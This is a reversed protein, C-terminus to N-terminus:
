QEESLGVRDVASALEALFAESKELLNMGLVAFDTKRKPFSAVGLYQFSGRLDQWSKRQSSESGHDPDHRLLKNRLRKLAWILECDDDALYEMFRLNDAGAGEYLMLYLADVLIGLSNRDSVAIWTLNSQAQIFTTTPRFIEVRGFLRASRNCEVVGEVVRRAKQSFRAIPSLLLLDDFDLAEIVEPRKVLEREQAEFLVLGFEGVVGGGVEIEDGLADEILDAAVLTHEEALVLAGSLAARQRASTTNELATLTNRSYESFYNFPEVLRSAWDPQLDFARIGKLADSVGSLSSAWVASPMQLNRLMNDAFGSHQELRGLLGSWSAQEAEIRAFMSDTFISRASIAELQKAIEEHWSPRLIVDNVLRAQRELEESLSKWPRVAREMEEAHRMLNLQLRAFEDFATM